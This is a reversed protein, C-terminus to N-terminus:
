VYKPTARLSTFHTMARHGRNRGALAACRGEAHGDDSDDDRAAAPLRYGEDYPWRL